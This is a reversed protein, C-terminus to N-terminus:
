NNAVIRSTSAFKHYDTFRVLNLFREPGGDEIAEMEPNHAVSVAIGRVPCTYTRGGIEVPAYEVALQSLLVPADPALEAELTIRVVAGTAANVYLDGHYAPHDRFPSARPARPDDLVNLDPDLNILDHSAPKPVSYHFVTLLAGGDGYQWRSWAISGAQADGLVTSLLPGFEGWTTMGAVRSSPSGSSGGPALPVEQGSRVTVQHQFAGVFHMAMRPQPHRKGVLQLANNYSHTSRTALFDPLRRASSSAYDRVAQLIRNQQLADPPPEAPLDAPPPAEFVSAAALLAVQEAALPGIRLRSSLTALRSDSLQEVLQVSSLQRALDADSEARARSSLLYDQLQRVTVQSQAFLPLASAVSLLIAAIRTM